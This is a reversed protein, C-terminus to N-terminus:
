DLHALWASVAVVAEETLEAFAQVAGEANARTNAREFRFIKAATTKNLDTRYVAIEFRLVSSARDASEFRQEFDLLRIKLNVHERTAITAFHKAILASPPAIWRDLNYFKVVTPNIHLQRYHIRTDRLWEPASVDIPIRPMNDDLPSLVIGLDHLAPAEPKTGYSCGSAILTVLFLCAYPSSAKM